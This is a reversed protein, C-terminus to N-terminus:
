TTPVGIIEGKGTFTFDFTYPTDTDATETYSTIFGRGERIIAPSANGPKNAIKMWFETKNKWLNFLKQFSVISPDLNADVANGTGTIEWSSTGALPNAFGDDNCKDSVDITDTTGNFANTQMCMTPLYALGHTGSMPTTDDIFVIYDNGSLKQEAM